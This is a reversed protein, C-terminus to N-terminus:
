SFFFTLIKLTAYITTISIMAYIFNRSLLVLVIGQGYLEIKRRLELEDGFPLLLNTNKIYELGGEKGKLSFDKNIMNQYFHVTWVVFLFLYPAISNGLLVYPFYILIEGFYNINRSNEFWGNTILKKGEQLQFYKQTDSAMMVVCGITHSTISLFIRFNGAEVYNKIILYPSVWYGLLFPVITICAQHLEVDQEWNKDPFIHDKILWLFGYTGHLSLYTCATTNFNQYFIMLFLVYFFTCGKQVNIFHKVKFRTEEHVIPETEEHIITETEESITSQSSDDNETSM